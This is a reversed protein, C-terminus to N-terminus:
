GNRHRVEMVADMTESVFGIQNLKILIANGCRSSIGRSLRETKTVFLDDGVLQLKKGLRETM